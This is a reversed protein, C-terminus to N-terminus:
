RTAKLVLVLGLLSQIAYAISAVGHWTEFRDAFVSHMVDLPLADAKLKAIIVAIGFHGVLTLVLMVFGAWFFAQKLASGGFKMVRNLLLYVGCVMGIYAVITFMEGALMGALQRDLLHYFLVPAAVYGVAWLGGVWLTISILALKDTWQNM